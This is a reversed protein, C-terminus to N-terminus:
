DKCKYQVSSIAQVKYHNEINGKKIIINITFIIAEKKDINSSSTCDALM